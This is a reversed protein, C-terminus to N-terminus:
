VTTNAPAIPKRYLPVAGATLDWDSCGGHLGLVIPILEVHGTREIYRRTARPLRLGFWCVPRSYYAVTFGREFLYQERAADTPFSEGFSEPYLHKGRVLRSTHDVIMGTPVNYGTMGGVATAFVDCRACLTPLVKRPRYAAFRTLRSPVSFLSRM